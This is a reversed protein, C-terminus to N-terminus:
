SEAGWYKLFENLTSLVMQGLDTEWDLEKVFGSSYLTAILYVWTEDDISVKEPLGFGGISTLLFEANDKNM